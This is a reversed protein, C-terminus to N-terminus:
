FIIITCPNGGVSGFLEYGNAKKALAMAESLSNVSKGEFEISFGIKGWGSKIQNLLKNELKM